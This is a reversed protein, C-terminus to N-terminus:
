EISDYVLRSFEEKQAQSRRACFSLLTNVPLVAFLSNCFTTLVSDHLRGIERDLYTIVYLTSQGLQVSKNLLKVVDDISNMYREKDVATTIVPSYQSSSPIHPFVIVSKSVDAMHLAVEVEIWDHTHMLSVDLDTAKKRNKHEHRCISDSFLEEAKPFQWWSRQFDKECYAWWNNQTTM